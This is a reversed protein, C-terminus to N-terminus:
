EDLALAPPLQHPQDARGVREGADLGDGGEALQEVGRVPRAPRVAPGFAVQRLRALRQRFVQDLVVTGPHEAPEGRAEPDVRELEVAEVAVHGVLVRALVALAHAPRDAHTLRQPKRQELEHEDARDRNGREAAGVVDAAIVHELHDERQADVLRQRLQAAGERGAERLDAVESEVLRGVVGVVAVLAVLRDPPLEDVRDVLGIRQRQPEPRRDRVLEPRVPLGSEGQSLSATTPLPVVRFTTSPSPASQREVVVSAADRDGEGDRERSLSSKSNVRAEPADGQPVGGAQPQGNVRNRPMLPAMFWPTLHIPPDVATATTSSPARIYTPPP